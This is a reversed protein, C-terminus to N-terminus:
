LGVIGSLLLALGDADPAIGQHVGLRPLAHLDLPPKIFGPDTTLSCAFGVRAALRRISEDNDGNPYCLSTPGRGLKEAIIRCSEELEVKAMVPGVETLMVHTSTHSGVDFVDEAMERLEDWTVLERRLTPKRDVLEDFFDIVADRQDPPAQKCGALAAHVFAPRSLNKLLLEPLFKAAAPMREEPFARVLSERRQWVGAALAAARSFWFPHDTGILGSPVFVTAPLGAKRLLPYAVEYTDLWGDDFTIVVTGPLLKEGTLLTRVLEDLKIVRYRSRLLDLHNAFANKTVAMGPEVLELDHIAPDLVRHYALIAAPGGFVRALAPSLGLGGITRALGRRALQKVGM